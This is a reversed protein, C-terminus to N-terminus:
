LWLQEVLLLLPPLFVPRQVAVAAPAAAEAALEAASVAAAAAEVALVAVAVSRVSHQMCDARRQVFKHM